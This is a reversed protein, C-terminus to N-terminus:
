TWAPRNVFARSESKADLIGKELWDHLIEPPPWLKMRQWIRFTGKRSNPHFVALVEKLEPLMEDVSISREALKRRPYRSRVLDWLMLRSEWTDLMMTERDQKFLSKSGM